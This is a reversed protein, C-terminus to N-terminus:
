GAEESEAEDLMECVTRVSGQVGHRLQSRIIPDADVWEHVQVLEDVTIGTALIASVMDADLEGLIQRVERGTASRLPKNSKVAM